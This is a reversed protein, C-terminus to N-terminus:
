SIVAKIRRVGASVAEEKTIRFTGGLEKTNTVHPGGCFEKSFANELSDGVYYVSIQEGYKEAFFHLAGSKEAEARPLVIRNVPLARRIADNVIEEVRTKEEPTMKGTHSFDFRLREPTINSGRQSVHGGLVEHLAKHLLHTATHYRVTMESTDGLGGKFKQESASRSTDKHVANATDFEKKLRLIDTDLLKAGREKLVELSLELPFGYSQHFDFLRQGTIEGAAAIEKELVKQGAEITAFFKKAEEQMAAVTTDASTEIEPYFNGYDDVLSSVADAIWAIDTSGLNRAKFFARRLLRRLIYGREKNGPLVGDAM